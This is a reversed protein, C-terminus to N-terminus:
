RGGPYYQVSQQSGAKARAQRLKMVADPALIAAKQDLGKSLAFRRALEFKIASYWFPELDLTYTGYISDAPSVHALIRVTGAEHPIPWLRLEIPDQRYAFMLTPRGSASKASLTQWLSYDIQTVRTEGSAASLSEGPEIYMGDHVVDYVDDALEYKYTGATLAIEVFRLYRMQVGESVLENLIDHLFERCTELDPALHAASTDAAADVLGSLKMASTALKDITPQYNRTPAVTM